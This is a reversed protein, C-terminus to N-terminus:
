NNDKEHPVGCELANKITKDWNEKTSVFYKKLFWKFITILIRFPNKLVFEIQIQGFEIVFKLVLKYFM